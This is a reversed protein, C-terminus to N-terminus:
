PPRSKVFFITKGNVAVLATYASFDVLKNEAEPQERCCVYERRMPMIKVDSM